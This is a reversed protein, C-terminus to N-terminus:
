KATTFSSAPLGEANFFTGMVYNKWGYRAYKPESLGEASLVLSNGNIVAIAPMFKKDAGAIEFESTDSDKLILGSGTNEFELILTNGDTKQSKLSPGNAMIAIDYDNALALRALRDGVDQKNGPHISTLNGIDMTVAMGTNKTSLSLRQAERLEQSKRGQPGGYGFPAIQVFYFSFDYGWSSRWDTIMSPFLKQYEEARGVNSEGQYWIAGKITYPLLPYIMGNYLSSPSENPGGSTITPRNRLQEQANDPYIILDKNFIDGHLTGSWEGELATKEGEANELLLPGTIGSGGGSDYQNIAITNAGKKLISKPVTYRREKNYLWTAGVKHGNVYTVDADDIAGIILTYDSNINNLAITKRYWFSGHLAQKEAAEPIFNDTHCQQAPLSFRNWHSADYEPDAYTDANREMKEFASIGSPAPLTTFLQSWVSIKSDDYNDITAIFQPFESLGKKSTWAEAVTGGWSSHIIGIPVKLEEQLKRAFFYATASFNQATKPACVLWEGSVSTEPTFSVTKRVTFMRIMPHNANTVEEEYNVVPEKPLFGTLPMEMNSQGSALWVEGIMVDALFISQEASGIEIEFPGGAKPTNLTTKWNGETDSVANAEEGWSAKIYIATKPEAKGWIPVDQQQQLVMHNTFLPHITLKVTNTVPTCYAFVLFLTIAFGLTITLKKM